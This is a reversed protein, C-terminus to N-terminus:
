RASSNAIRAERGAGTPEHGAKFFEIKASKDSPEITLGTTPNVYATAIGDPIEFDRIDYERSASQMYYVWVPTAARGGSEGSGLNKPEDYGVWVGTVIDATYGVFWADHYDNTTGTKGASPRGLAKARQGTGYNVVDKMMSTILFATEPSLVEMGSPENNEIVKGDQDTIYKIATPEMRVGENAFVSYCVTLELPSISLSGLALTLDRPIPGSVGMSRALDIVGDVGVDNIIRATVVNRSYVLADRLSLSGMFTGDYNHPVWDRLGRGGEFSTPEDHVITSPSYDKDLAVSYTIPKFASGAQRFSQFARNFESKNYDYGGIMAKIYGTHPDISVLAAQIEPEQELTLEAINGKVSKIAVHVVDGPELIHAMSFKEGAKRKKAFTSTSAWQADALALRGVFGRLYVLAEAPTVKLVTGEAMDDASQTQPSSSMATNLKGADYLELLKAFDSRHDIPGRWGKRKDLERLGKQVASQASLQATKDLTTYVNLGGKTLFDAGYKTEIQKKVYDIFYNHAVIARGGTSLNIPAKEVEEREKQSIFGVEEMRSLVLGEREKAKRINKFPSYNSPAKLLGAILACEQISLDKVPKNFYINAAMEVGYAGHGFYARNLYLEIIEKKSLEKEIKTALFLERLKRKITKEPTLFTMKALQQTITSAGEKFKQHLVDKVLARAIAFYDVGSHKWFNADEIAIVANILNGPIKDYPTYIGKEPKIEGILTDDDAFVKTPPLEKNLKLEDISPVGRSIAYYGGGVAGLLISLLVILFVSKIM